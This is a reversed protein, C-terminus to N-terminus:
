IIDDHHKSDNRVFDVQAQCVENPCLVSASGEPRPMPYSAPMPLSSNEDSLIRDSSPNPVKKTGATDTNLVQFRTLRNQYKPVKRFYNM